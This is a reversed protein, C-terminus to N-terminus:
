GACDDKDRRALYRHRLVALPPSSRAIFQAFGASFSTATRNHKGVICVFFILLSALLHDLFLNSVVVQCNTERYGVPQGPNDRATVILRIPLQRVASMMKETHITGTSKDITFLKGSNTEEMIDYVLQGLPGSDTDEAAVLILVSSIPADASIAAYFKGNTFRNEPYKSLFKPSNDNVDLVTM